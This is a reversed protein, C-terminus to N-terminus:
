GVTRGDNVMERNGLRSAVAGLIRLIEHEPGTPSGAARWFVFLSGVYALASLFVVAILGAYVHSEHGFVAAFAWSTLLGVVIM